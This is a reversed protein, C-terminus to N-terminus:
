SKAGDSQHLVTSGMGYACMPIVADFLAPMHAALHLAGYGGMSTGFMIVRETRQQQKLLQIEECMMQLFPACCKGLFWGKPYNKGKNTRSTVCWDFCHGGIGDEPCTPIMFAVNANLQSQVTRLDKEHFVQGNSGEGHLLIVLYTIDFPGPLCPLEVLKYKVTVAVM